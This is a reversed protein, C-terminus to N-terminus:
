ALVVGFLTLYPDMSSFTMVRHKGWTDCDVRVLETNERVEHFTFVVCRSLQSYKSLYSGVALFHSCLSLTKRPLTFELLHNMPIPHPM